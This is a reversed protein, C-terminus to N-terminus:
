WRAVAALLLVIVALYLVVEWPELVGHRRSM